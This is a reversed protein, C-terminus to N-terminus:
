SCHIYLYQEVDANDNDNKKFLMRELEDSPDVIEHELLWSFSHWCLCPSYTFGREKYSTRSKVYDRFRVSLWFLLCQAAVSIHLYPFLLLTFKMDLTKTEELTKIGDACHKICLEQIIVIDLCWIRKKNKLSTYAWICNRTIWSISNYFALFCTWVAEKGGVGIKIVNYSTQYCYNGDTM